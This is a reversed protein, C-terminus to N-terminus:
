SLPHCDNLTSFRATGVISITLATVPALLETRFTLAPVSTEPADDPAVILPTAKIVVDPPVAEWTARQFIFALESSHNEIWWSYWWTDTL